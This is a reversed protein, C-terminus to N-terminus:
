LTPQLIFLGVSVGGAITIGSEFYPFFTWAGDFSDCTCNPDASVVCECALEGDFYAVEELSMDPLIKRIRAGSTYAAQYIYGDKVYLNHDINPHDGPTVFRRPPEIRADLNTVNFIYCTSYNTGSTQDVEDLEDDSYIYAQSDYTFSNITTLTDLNFLVILSEMFLACINTGRYKQDPGHYNICHADHVYGRGGVVDVCTEFAPKRRNDSLDFVALSAVTESPRGINKGPCTKDNVDMGVAILKKAKTAVVLNHTSGLEPTTYTPTVVPVTATTFGFLWFMIFNWTQEVLGPETGRITALDFTQIGHFSTEAGVYMVNGLVKIDRWINNNGDLGNKVGLTTEVFVVARPKTPDTIDVISTGDWMGVLAYERGTTRDVWGWVDSVFTSYIEPNATKAYPSGLDEGTMFAALTMNKCPYAGLVLGTSPDCQLPGTSGAIQSKLNAARVKASADSGNEHAKLKLPMLRTSMKTLSGKKMSEVVSGSLLFAVLQLSIWM